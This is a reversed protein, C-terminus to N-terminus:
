RAMRARITVMCAGDRLWAANRDAPRQGSGVSGAPIVLVQLVLLDDPNAAVPEISWRRVWCAGPPPSAGSGVWRGSQDLYDVYGSTNTWLADAPSQNLGRGGGTPRDGSLDTTLDSIRVEPANPDFGWTLGRLQELRQLALVTATTQSRADITARVAALFLPALGTVATVLIAAACLVETLGTGCAEARSCAWSSKPINAPVPRCM